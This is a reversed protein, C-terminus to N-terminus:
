SIKLKYDIFSSLSDIKYKFFIEKSAFAGEFFVEVSLLKENRYKDCLAIHLRSVCVFFFNYAVRVVSQFKDIKM